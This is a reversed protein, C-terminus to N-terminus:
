FSIGKWQGKSQVPINGSVTRMTKTYPVDLDSVTMQATGIDVSRPPAVVPLMVDIELAENMEEDGDTHQCNAAAELTIEGMAVFPASTSFATSATITFGTSHKFRATCMVTKQFHLVTQQPSDTTNCVMHQGIMERKANLIRSADLQYAIRHFRM